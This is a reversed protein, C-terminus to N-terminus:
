EVERGPSFLGLAHFIQAELVSRLVLGFVSFLLILTGGLIVPPATRGNTAIILAALLLAIAVLPAAARFGISVITWVQGATARFADRATIELGEIALAPGVPFLRCTLWITVLFFAPLILLGLGSPLYAVGRTWPIGLLYWGLHYAVLDKRRIAEGLLAWMSLSRLGLAHRYIAMTYPVLLITVAIDLLVNSLSGTANGPGGLRATLLLQVILVFTVFATERRLSGVARFAARYAASTSGRTQLAAAM